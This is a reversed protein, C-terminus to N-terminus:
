YEDILIAMRIHKSRLEQLLDGIRKSEPTFFAPRVLDTIPQDFNAMGNRLAVLLEKASIIGRVDDIGGPGLVPFRTHGTEAFRDLVERTTADYDITVVETRPLMAQYAPRDAFAFVNILMEQEEEDLVGAEGSEEVLLRLEEASHVKAHGGSERMGFPALVCDTAWDLFRIVPAFLRSFLMLPNAVLLAHREPANYAYVKPAQEGLVVHFTTLIFYSVAVGVAHSIVLAMQETVALSGLVTTVISEIPPEVLAAITPEGIAGLALSSLTVGLQT